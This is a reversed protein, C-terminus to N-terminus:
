NFLMLGPLSAPLLGQSLINIRQMSMMLASSFNINNNLATANLRANYIDFSSGSKIHAMGGKIQLGNATTNATLDLDTIVNGQYPYLSHHIGCENWWQQFSEQLM